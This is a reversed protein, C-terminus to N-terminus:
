ERENKRFTAGPSVPGVIVDPPSWGAMQSMYEVTARGSVSAVKLWANRTLVVTVRTDAGTIDGKFEVVRATISVTSGGDIKSGDGTPTTQATFKVEGGPAVIEVVSRGDIKSSIHVTGNPARLKLTSGSDIKGTVTVVGAELGSADLVAGAELGHVRLAKVKQKGKLVVHEGRKLAPVSYTDKPENFEHTTIHGVQPPPVQRVDSGAESVLEGAGAKARPEHPMPAIEPRAPAAPSGGSQGPAANSNTADDTPRAAVEPADTRTQSWDIAQVGLVGAIGCLAGLLFAGAGFAFRARPEPAPTPRPAGPAYLQSADAPLGATPDPEAKPRARPTAPAVPPADCM